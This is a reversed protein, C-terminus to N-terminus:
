PGSRSACLGESVKYIVMRCAALEIDDEEICWAKDDFNIEVASGLKLFM